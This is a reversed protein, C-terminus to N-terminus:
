TRRKRRKKRRKHKKRTSKKKARPKKRRQPRRTKRTAPRKKRRKNRLKRLRRLRRKRKLEAVRRRERASELQQKEQASLKFYPGLTKPLRKPIDINARGTVVTKGYLYRYVVYSAMVKKTYGNAQRYPIEEIWADTDLSGREKWWRRSSGPGANYAALVMPVNGRFLALLEKLFRAAIRINTEPRKLGQFSPPAIALARKVVSRATPLLLQMLGVADASSVVDPRFGSEHRMVAMILFPSIQNKKAYKQALDWYALPYALEWLRTFKVEPHLDFGGHWKLRRHVGWYDGAKLYLISLLLHGAQPMRSLRLRYRLESKAMELLGLRILAVPTDLEAHRRIQYRTFDSLAKVGVVKVLHANRLNQRRAPALEGLRTYAQNAYYTLPYRKILSLYTRTAAESQGSMALARAKWYLGREAWRSRSVTWDDPYGRVIDSFPAVAERYSGGRFLNWGLAWYADRRVTGRPAIKLLRKLLEREKLPQNLARLIRTRLFLASALVRKPVEIGDLLALKGLAQQNEGARWLAHGWGELIRVQLVRNAKTKGASELRYAEKYQRLAKDRTDSRKRNLEAEAYLLASRHRRGRYLRRLKALLRRFQRVKRPSVKKLLKQIREHIPPPANLKQLAEVARETWKWVDYREWIRRFAAIASRTKGLKQFSEGLLFLAKAKDSPFLADGLALKLIAIGRAVRNQAILLKAQAMRAYIAQRSGPAVLAYMSLAKDTQQKKEYYRGLYYYAYPAFARVEAVRHHIAAAEDPRRTKEYALALLFLHAKRRPHSSRTAYYQRLLRITKGYDGRAFAETAQRLVPQGQHFPTMVYHSSAAAVGATLLM